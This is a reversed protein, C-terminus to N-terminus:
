QLTFGLIVYINVEEMEQDTTIDSPQVTSLPDWNILHDPPLVQLKPEEPKFDPKREPLKTLGFESTPKGTNELISM